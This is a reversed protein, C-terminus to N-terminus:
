VHTMARVPDIRAAKAAPYLAALLCALWMALVPGLADGLTPAARWVSHMSIGQVVVDGGLGSMDIGVAALYWTGLLGLALGALSAVAGLLWAELSVDRLIGWPSKGLAKLVGFERIREYTAMLMTNTVGLGAALLFVLAFLWLMADFMRTMDSVAPLLARWSLLEAGVAAPALRRVVEEDSLRGRSSVAIEHVRGGSAFLEDFDRRHVFAAARDIEEGVGGLIGTVTFLENGLSGDGAQVVAVIEDGLEVRLARALKRGLVLERVPRGLTARGGGQHGALGLFRGEAVRDALDFARREAEADVGWFMSGSSKPGSSLLGFGFARAAAPIGEAEAARLVAEAVEPPIPRFFSREQRYGEAHVQAEGVSLLTIQRVLDVVIGRMLGFTAILVATNLGIAVATIATRRGNRGLNRWAIRLSGV